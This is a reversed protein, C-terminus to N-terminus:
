RQKGFRQRLWVAFANMMVLFFILTLTAAATKAQFAREPSAAWLYVQVPLATSPETFGRPIDAIFAVMGIMLLPASEGLAQAMGIIAGTLIGPMAAPLTHHLMAQMESAGSALAAERLTTPVADLSTRAAIIIVPLTMLALTMGGVLPASRPLGFFNLFVALALLGFVVSPVAALNNINVEIFDTIRNKPAFRHLYIAAMVGLPFSLLFTVILLFASGAMAGLIGAAEPERSDGGTFFAWNFQREIRGDDRLKQLHAIQSEDLRNKAIDSDRFYFDADASMPLWIAAPKEDDSEAIIQAYKQPASKSILAFLKRREQRSQVQPFLDALSKRVVARASESSNGSFELRVFTHTFAPIAQSVITGLLAALIALAIFIAGAGALRFACSKARRMRLRNPM